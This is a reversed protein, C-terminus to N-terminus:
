NFFRGIASKALDAIGSGQGLDGLLGQLAGANGGVHKTVLDTIMPLLTNKVGGAQEASLGAQTTLNGQMASGIKELLSNSGATNTASSFLNTLTAMDFGGGSSLTSQLGSAAANISAKAQDPSLGHEKMLKPLAQETLSSLINDFM